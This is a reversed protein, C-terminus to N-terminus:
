LLQLFKTVRQSVIQRLTLPRQAARRIFVTRDHAVQRVLRRRLPSLLRLMQRTRSVELPRALDSCALGRECDAAGRVEQTRREAPRFSASASERKLLGDRRLRSSSRAPSSFGPRTRASPRRRGRGGFHRRPEYLSGAWAQRQ